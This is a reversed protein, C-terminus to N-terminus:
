GPGDLYRAVVFLYDSLRNLFRRATGLDGQARGAHDPGARHTMFAVFAREATRCRARAVDAHASAETSDGPVYFRAEITIRSRLERESGELATLDADAVTGPDAVGGARLSAMGPTSAEEVPTPVAAVMGMIRGLTLQQARLDTDLPVQTDLDGDAEPEHKRDRARVAVRLRGLAANLEDLWGLCEFVPDSKPLRKKSLLDARGDDGPHPTRPTDSMAPALTAHAALTQAHARRWWRQTPGASIAVISAHAGETQASTQTECVELRERGRFLDSEIERFRPRQVAYIGFIHPCPKHFTPAPRELFSISAILSM